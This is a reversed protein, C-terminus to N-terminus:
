MKRVAKGLGAWLKIFVVKILTKLNPNKTYWINGALVKVLVTPYTNLRMNNGRCGVHRLHFVGASNRADKFNFSKQTKGM